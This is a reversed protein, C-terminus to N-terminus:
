EASLEGIKARVKRYQAIERLWKVALLLPFAGTAVTRIAGDIIPAVGSKDQMAPIANTFFFVGTNVAVAAVWLIKEEYKELGAKRIIKKPFLWIVILGMAGGLLIGYFFLAV